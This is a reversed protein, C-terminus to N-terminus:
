TINNRPSPRQPLPSMDSFKLEKKTEKCNAFIGSRGLASFSIADWSSVVAIEDDM